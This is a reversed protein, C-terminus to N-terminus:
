PKNLFYLYYSNWLRHLLIRKRTGKINADSSIFADFANKNEIRYIDMLPKAKNLLCESKTKYSPFASFSSIVNFSSPVIVNLVSM